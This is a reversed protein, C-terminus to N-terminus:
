VPKMARTMERKGPPGPLAEVQLGISKLDRKVQGKACYTILIGGPKMADVLHQYVQITWMDPQKEPAFADFYVLDFKLKPLAVQLIPKDIKQLHFHSNIETLINWPSQHLQIFRQKDEAGQAYNLEKWIAEPVPFPEISIYEVEINLEISKRLTLFANLGTGFGVELITLAKKNGSHVCYELGNNIFVHTSEQIAGYISHYTENLLTNRLTHSGDKTPIIEIM